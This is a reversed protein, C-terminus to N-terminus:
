MRPPQTEGSESGADTNLIRSESIIGLLQDNASVIGLDSASVLQMLNSEICVKKCTLAGNKQIISEIISSGSTVSYYGNSQAISIGVENNKVMQVLEAWKSKDLSVHDYAYIVISNEVSKPDVYFKFALKLKTSFNLPKYKGGKISGLVKMDEASYIDEVTLASNSDQAFSSNTLSTASLTLYFTSFLVSRLIM